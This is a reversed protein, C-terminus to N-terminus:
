SLPWILGGRRPDMEALYADILRCGLTIFKALSAADRPWSFKQVFLGESHLVVEVDRTTPLARLEEIVVRTQQSGETEGSRGSLVTENASPPSLFCGDSSISISYQGLWAL